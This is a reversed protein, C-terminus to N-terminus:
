RPQKFDTTVIIWGNKNILEKEYKKEIEEIKNMINKDYSDQRVYVTIYEDFIEPDHYIELSIQTPHKFKGRVLKCIPVILDIVDPYHLLYNQVDNSDPIMIELSKVQSFVQQIKNLLEANQKIDTESVLSEPM